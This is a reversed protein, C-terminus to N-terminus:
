LNIKWYSVKVGKKGKLIEDVRIVKNVTLGDIDEKDIKLFKTLTPTGVSDLYKGIASMTDPVRKIYHVRQKSDWIPRFDIIKYHKTFDVDKLKLIGSM